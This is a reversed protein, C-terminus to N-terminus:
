ELPIYHNSAKFINQSNLQTTNVCLSHFHEDKKTDNLDYIDDM